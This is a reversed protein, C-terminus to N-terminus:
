LKLKGRLAGIIPSHQAQGMQNQHNQLTVNPPNNGGATPYLLPKAMARRMAEEAALVAEMKTRRDEGNLLEDMAEKYTNDLCVADVAMKVTYAEATDAYKHIDEIVDAWRGGELFEEPHSDIRALM